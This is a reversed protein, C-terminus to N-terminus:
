MEDMQRLFAERQEDELKEYVEAKAEDQPVGEGYRYMLGLTETARVNGLQSAKDYWTIAKEMDQPMNNGTAYFTGMNYCARDSGANAAKLNWNTATEADIETGIGTAYYVYLEFMADANDLAASKQHYDFSVAYDPSLWSEGNYYLLGLEYLAPSYGKEGLEKYIDIYIGLTEEGFFPMSKMSEFYYKTDRFIQEHTYKSFADNSIIAKLEDHDIREM